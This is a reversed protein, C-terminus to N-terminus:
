AFSNERRQVVLFRVPHRNVQGAVAGRADGSHSVGPQALVKLQGEFGDADIVGDLLEGDHVLVEELPELHVRDLQAAGERELVFVPRVPYQGVAGGAVHRGPGLGFRRLPSHTRREPALPFMM